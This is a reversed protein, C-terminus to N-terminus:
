DTEDDTNDHGHDDDAEEGVGGAGDGGEGGGGGGDEEDDASDASASLSFMTKLINDVEAKNHRNAMM